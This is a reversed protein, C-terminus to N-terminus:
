VKHEIYTFIGSNIVPYVLQGIRVKREAHVHLILSSCFPFDASESHPATFKVKQVVSYPMITLLTVTSGSHNM